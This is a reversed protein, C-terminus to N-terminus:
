VPKPKLVLVFISPNSSQGTISLLHREPQSPTCRCKLKLNLYSFFYFSSSWRSAERLIPKTLKYKTVSLCRPSRAARSTGAYFFNSSFIPPLQPKTTESRCAAFLRHQSRPFSAELVSVLNNFAVSHAFVSPTLNLRVIWPFHQM